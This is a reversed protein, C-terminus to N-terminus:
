EFNDKGTYLGLGPYCVGYSFKQNGKKDFAPTTCVPHMRISRKEGYYLDQWVGSSLYNQMNRIYAEISYYRSVESANKSHRYERISSLEEKCSKIWKKVKVPSLPHDEPLERISEHISVMKSPTKSKRALELRKAAAERQEPTM